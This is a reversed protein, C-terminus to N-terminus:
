PNEYLDDSSLDTESFGDELDLQPSIALSEEEFVERVDDDPDLPTEPLDLWEKARLSAELEQLKREAETRLRIKGAAIERLSIVIDENKQPPIQYDAGDRLQRVREAAMHVLKFRNVDKKLCDKITVRAM